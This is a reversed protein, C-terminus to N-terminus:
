LPILRVAIVILIVGGLIQGFFSLKEGFVKGAHVGGLCILFTTIGIILSSLIAEPTSQSATIFGVSLADISTAVAQLLIMRIGPATTSGEEGSGNRNGIGEVIMKVGLILLIVAGAWPVYPVVTEFTKETHNVLFWGCLPMLFQFLGFAGTMFLRDKRKIHPADLGNAVSVSFADMALAAGLIINKLLFLIANM